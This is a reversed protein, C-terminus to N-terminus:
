MLFEIQAFLFFFALLENTKIINSFLFCLLMLHGTSHPPATSRVVVLYQHVFLLVFGRRGHQPKVM